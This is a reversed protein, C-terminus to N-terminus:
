PLMDAPRSPAWPDVPRPARGAAEEAADYLTESDPLSVDYRVRLERRSELLFADLGAWAYGPQDRSTDRVREVLPSGAPVHLASGVAVGDGDSHAAFLLLRGEAPLPRVDPEHPLAALDVTM